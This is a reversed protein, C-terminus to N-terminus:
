LIRLSSARSVPFSSVSNVLRPPALKITLFVSEAPIKSLPSPVDHNSRLFDVAHYDTGPGRTKGCALNDRSFANGNRKDVTFLLGATNQQLADVITEAKVIEFFFEGPRFVRLIKGFPHSLQRNVQKQFGSNDIDHRLVPVAFYNGARCSVTNRQEFRSRHHKGHPAPFTVPSIDTNGSRPRRPDKGGPQRLTQEIDFPVNGAPSRYDDSRSIDAKDHRSAQSPGTGFDRGNDLDERVRGTKGPIDDLTKLVEGNRQQQAM